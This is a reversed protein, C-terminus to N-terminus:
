NQKKIIGNRDVIYSTIAKEGHWGCPDYVILNVEYQDNGVAKVHANKEMYKFLPDDGDLVSAPLGGEHLHVFSLAEEPSEIPAFAERLEQRNKILVPEEGPIQVVLVLKARNECDLAYLGEHEESLSVASVLQFHEGINLGGLFEGFRINNITELNFEEKIQINASSAIFDATRTVRSIVQKSLFVDYLTRIQACTLAKDYVHAEEIQGYLWPNGPTAGSNYHHRKGFLAFLGETPFTAVSNATYQDIEVGEWYITIQTKTQSDIPKFVIAIQHFAGLTTATEEADPMEDRSNTRTFNNSGAMWVQDKVEGYVIGNFLDEGTDITLASGGKQSINDLKVWSVLTKEQLTQEANYEESKAWKNEGVSLSGNSIEAGELQLVGFNGQLDRTPVPGEFIWKGIPEPTEQNVDLNLIAVPEFDDNPFEINVIFELYEGAKMKYSFEDANIQMPKIEKSANVLAGDAEGRIILPISIDENDTLLVSEWKFSYRGDHQPVFRIASQQIDEPMTALMFGFSGSKATYPPDLFDIGPIDETIKLVAIKGPESQVYPLKMDEDLPLAYENDANYAQFDGDLNNYYGVEIDCLGTFFQDTSPAGYFPEPAKLTVDLVESTDVVEGGQRYYDANFYLEAGTTAYIAYNGAQDTKASTFIINGGMIYDLNNSYVIEVGEIPRTRENVVKGTIRIVEPSSWLVNENEDKLILQGQNTLVIESGTVETCWNAYSRDLLDICFRGERNKAEIRSAYNNIGWVLSNDGAKRVVIQGSTATGEEQEITAYFNGDESSLRDNNSLTENRMVSTQQAELSNFGMTVLTAMLFLTFIKM